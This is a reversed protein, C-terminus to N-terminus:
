QSYLGEEKQDLKMRIGFINILLQWLLKYKHKLGLIRGKDVMKIKEQYLVCFFLPCLIYIFGANGCAGLGKNRV